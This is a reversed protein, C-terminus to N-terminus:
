TRRWSQENKEMWSILENAESPARGPGNILDAAVQTPAAIRLDQLAVERRAVLVPYAPEALLVNAGTDTARLGWTEAATEPDKAYIMASRPPAYSEWAAAAISGTVAYGSFESSRVVDLFAPLGRPAIWSTTRNTRLFQYDESWRRLLAAWNPVTIATGERDILAEQDLFDLVRYASGTAVDATDILHRVKWPKNFDLLARVVKAAPEGQLSSRPRGPGRWPDTDAGASSIFVAAQDSRVLMNGAADVYSIEEEELLRRTSASLYRAVLLAVSGPRQETARALQDRIRYVDHARVVNKAEVLFTSILGNPAFLLFEADYGDDHPEQARFDWTPPLSSGIARAAAGITERENSPPEIGNAPVNLYYGSEAYCPSASKGSCQCNM